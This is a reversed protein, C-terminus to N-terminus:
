KRIELVTLLYVVGGSGTCAACLFQLTFFGWDGDRIAPLSHWAVLFSVVIAAGAAIGSLFPRITM